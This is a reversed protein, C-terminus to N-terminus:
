KALAKMVAVAQAAPLGFFWAEAKTRDAPTMAKLMMNLRGLVVGFKKAAQSGWEKVLDGCDSERFEEIFDDTAPRWAGPEVALFGFISTQASAPLQDFSGMLAQAEDPELADMAARAADQATKLHYAVGGQREWQALLDKDLASGDYQSDEKSAPAAPAKLQGRLTILYRERALLAEDKWYAHKDKRRLRDIEALERQISALSMPPALARDMDEASYGYHRQAEERTWVGANVSSAVNADLERDFHAVDTGQDVVAPLTEGSSM